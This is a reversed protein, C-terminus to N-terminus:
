FDSARRTQSNISFRCELNTPVARRDDEILSKKQIAEDKNAAAASV